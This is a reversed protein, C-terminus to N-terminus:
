FRVRDFNLSHLFVASNRPWFGVLPERHVNREGHTLYGPFPPETGVHSFNNVLM